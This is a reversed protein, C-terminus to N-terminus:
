GPEFFPCVFLGIKGQSAYFESVMLRGFSDHKGVSIYMAPNRSTLTKTRTQWNKFIQIGFNEKLEVYLHVYDWMEGMEVRIDPITVTHLHHYNISLDMQISFPEKDTGSIVINPFIAVERKPSFSNFLDPFDSQLHPPVYINQTQKILENISIGGIVVLKHQRKEVLEKKAQYTFQKYESSSCSEQIPEKSSLIQYVEDIAAEKEPDVM